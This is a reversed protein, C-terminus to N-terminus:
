KFLERNIMDELADRKSMILADFAMNEEIDGRKLIFGGIIDVAKDSLQANIGSENIKQIFDGPLRGLDKNNLFIVGENENLTGALRYIFLFYEEDPLNLLYNLTEDITKDIEIRRQKLIRNRIELEARSQSSKKIQAIKADTKDNVSKVAAEAKLEAQSLIDGCEAEAKALIAEVNKDCDSKIRNLIKEGGNM